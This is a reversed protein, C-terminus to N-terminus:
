KQCVIKAGNRGWKWLKKEWFVAENVALCCCAAATLCASSLPENVNIQNQKYNTCKMKVCLVVNKADWFRHAVIPHPFNPATLQTRSLQHPVVPHPCNPASLQTSRCNPAMKKTRKRKQNQRWNQFNVVDNKGLLVDDNQLKRLAFKKLFLWISFRM